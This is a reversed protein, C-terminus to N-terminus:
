EIIDAGIASNIQAWASTVIGADEPDKGVLKKTLYTAVSVSIVLLLIYELVIQGSDNRLKARPSQRSHSARMSRLWSRNLFRLTAAKVKKNLQQFRM